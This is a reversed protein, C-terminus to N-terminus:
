ARSTPLSGGIGYAYAVAAAVAGLPRNARLDPRNDRDSILFVLLLDVVSLPLKSKLLFVGVESMYVLQTASACAIVFRTVESDIGAALVVSLFQDAFGVLLAPAAAEAEPLRLLEAFPVLPYSLWDFLPTHHALALSLTGVVMVVPLLGFWIDFTTAIGNRALVRLGPTKAARAVALEVGRSVTGRASAASVNAASESTAAASYRDRKRSLPPVRPTVVAAVAGSAVLAGYFLFFHEGVGAVDVVVKAFAVSIVSFNLAIVAAERETYHGADFQKTTIVVGVTSSGFWSAACDVAARGPLTLAPRFVGRVLTGIFEMLGFETLFPMLVSAFFFVVLVVTMLERLITGGTADSVLWGPGAGTLVMWALVAAACRLLVGLRSGSAVLAHAYGGKALVGAPRFIVGYLAGLASVSVTAGVLWPLADGLLAKIADVLVGIGTNTGQDTPVPALFFLVGLLSPVVFRLM